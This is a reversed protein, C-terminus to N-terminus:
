SRIDQPAMAADFGISANIAVMLDDNPVELPRGVDQQRIRETM